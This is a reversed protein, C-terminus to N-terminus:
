HEVVKAGLVLLAIERESDIAGLPRFQLFRLRGGMTWPHVTVEGVLVCSYAVREIVAHLPLEVHDRARLTQHEGLLRTYAIPRVLRLLLTATGPLQEVESARSHVLRDCRGVRSVRVGLIALIKVHAHVTLYRPPAPALQPLREVLPSSFAVPRPLYGFAFVPVFTLQGVLLQVRQLIRWRLRFRTATPLM